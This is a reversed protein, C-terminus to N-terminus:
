AGMVSVSVHAGPRDSDYEKSASQRVVQADDLWVLGTLADELARLLKTTDPRAARFKPADQKLAGNARYHGKPRVFRFVVQLGLAGSLPPHEGMAIRAAERVDARWHATYKGAERTTTMPRGNQMVIEGGKRRIVTATKSGGPRPVGPVFFEFTMPRM